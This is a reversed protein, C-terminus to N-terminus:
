GSAYARIRIEVRRHRADTVHAGDRIQLRTAAYGQNSIRNAAVGNAVLAGAVSKALARPDPIDKNYGDDSFASIALTTRDYHRVITALTALASQGAATLHNSNDEFLMHNLLSVVIQDGPRAVGVGHVKLHDRFDREQRDMYSGIMATRLPGASPVNQPAKRIVPQAPKAPPVAAQVRPASPRPPPPPAYYTPQPACASILLGAALAFAKKM